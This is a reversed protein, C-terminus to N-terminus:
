LASANPLSLVVAGVRKDGRKRSAGHKGEGAEAANPAKLHPDTPRGTNKSCKYSHCPKYHEKPKMVTGDLSIYESLKFPFHILSHM